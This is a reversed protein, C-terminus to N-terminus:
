PQVRAGQAAWKRAPPRYEKFRALLKEPQEEIAVMAALPAALFGEAVMRAIMEVLPTFYGGVNLFGCPKAHLGLQAWTWQEFIEELTGAGGPLALFADALDSMLQKREHMTEVVRLDSIGQHVIEREVLARPMVGTVHGGASLDADALVGM